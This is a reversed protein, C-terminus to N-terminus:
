VGNTWAGLLSIVQNLLYILKMHMQSKIKWPLFSLKAYHGFTADLILPVKGCLLDATYHNPNQVQLQLDIIWLLWRVICLLIARLLGSVCM